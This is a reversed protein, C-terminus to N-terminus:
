GDLGFARRLAKQTGPGFNGDIPGAYFGAEALRRQLAARSPAKFMGPRQALVDLVDRAGSRLADYLYGAAAEPGKGAILGDDILASYNFLAQPQRLDAARGFLALAAAKDSALGLGGQYTLFGLDNVADPYDQAAAARYLALARAGDPAVGLGKEYLRALEYQAQASGADAARTLLRVAEAPDFRDQASNLRMYALGVMSRADGQAALAALQTEQDPRLGSWAVRLDADGTTDANAGPGALYFPVGSLSGYVHPEQRNGTDAMVADRVQRFMLSIELGPVKM